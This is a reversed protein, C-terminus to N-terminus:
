IDRLIELDNANWYEYKNGPLPRKIIFPIKKNQLELRAIHYGDIINSPVTILPPAGHEIQKARLGLLNTIEYRSMFPHTKHLPDDIIGEKNRKIRTMLKVKEHSDVIVEPHHIKIFDNQIDQDFKQLANEDNLEDDTDTDTLDEASSLNEVDDATDSNLKLIPMQKKSSQTLSKINATNSDDMNINESENIGDDAIDADEDDDINSDVEDEIDDGDIDDEVDVVSNDVDSEGVEVDSGEDDEAIDSSVDKNEDLDPFTPKDFSDSM